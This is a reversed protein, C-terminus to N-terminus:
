EVEEEDYEEYSPFEVRFTTEEDEGEPRIAFAVMVNDKIGKGVPTDGEQINLPKWGQSPDSATKPIAFEIRSADEPLPTRQPPAVSTTLGNPYRERLIGLLEEAVDSFPKM